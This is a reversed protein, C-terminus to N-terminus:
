PLECGHFDIVWVCSEADSGPVDQGGGGGGSAGAAAAARARRAEMLACADELTRTLHQAASAIPNVKDVHEFGLGELTRTLHQAASAHHCNSSSPQIWHGPQM